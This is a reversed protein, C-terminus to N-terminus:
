GGSSDEERATEVAAKAWAVRPAIMGAPKEAARLMELAIDPSGRNLADLADTALQQAEAAELALDAIREAARQAATQLV